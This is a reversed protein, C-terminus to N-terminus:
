LVYGDFHDTSVLLNSCDCINWIKYLHKINDNSSIILYLQGDFGFDVSRCSFMSRVINYRASTIMDDICESFDKKDTISLSLKASESMEISVFNEIPELALLYDVLSDIAESRKSRDKTTLEYDKM